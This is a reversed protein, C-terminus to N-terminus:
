YNNVIIDSSTIMELPCFYKGGLSLYLIIASLVSSIHIKLGIEEGASIFVGM